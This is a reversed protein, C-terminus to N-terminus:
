IRLTLTLSSTRTGREDVDDVDYRWFEVGSPHGGWCVVHGLCTRM